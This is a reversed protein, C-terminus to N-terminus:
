VNVDFENFHKLISFTESIKHSTKEISEKRLLPCFGESVVSLISFESFKLLVAAATCERWIDQGEFLSYGM